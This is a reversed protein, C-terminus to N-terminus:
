NAKGRNVDSAPLGSRLTGMKASGTVFSPPQPGLLWKSHTRQFIRIVPVARPGSGNEVVACDPHAARDSFQSFGISARSGVLCGLGSELTGPPPM